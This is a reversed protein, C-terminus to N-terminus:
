SILGYRKMITYDSKITSESKGLKEGMRRCYVRVGEEQIEAVGRDIMDYHYNQLNAEEGELQQFKRLNNGVKRMRNTLGLEKDMEAPTMKKYNQLYFAEM